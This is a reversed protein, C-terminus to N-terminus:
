QKKPKPTYSIQKGKKTFGQLKGTKPDTVTKYDDRNELMDKFTIDDIDSIDHEEVVACNFKIDMNQLVVNSGNELVKFKRKM